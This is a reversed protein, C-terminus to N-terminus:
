FRFEATTTAAKEDVFRAEGSVTIRDWAVLTTGLAWGFHRQSRANQLVVAGSNCAGTMKARANSWKVAVYPTLFAIKHAWGFSVQWEYFRTTAPTVNTASVIVETKNDTWSQSNARNVREYNVDAGLYSTGCNCGWNWCWLMLKAGVAWLTKTEFNADLFRVTGASNTYKSVLDQATAGAVGYLDIRDWLNLTLVGANTLLAYEDITHSADKLKRNYVFDGHYGARISWCACDDCLFVSELYQAPAAPNGVPSASLSSAALSLSLLAFLKKM